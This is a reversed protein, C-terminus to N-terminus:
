GCGKRTRIGAGRSMSPRQGPFERRGKQGCSDRYLTAMRVRGLDLLAWSRRGGGDARGWRGGGLAQCVSPVMCMDQSPSPSGPLGLASSYSAGNGRHLLQWCRVPFGTDLASTQSPSGPQLRFLPLPQTVVIKTVLMHVTDNESLGEPEMGESRGEQESRGPVCSGPGLWAGEMQGQQAQLDCRKLIRDLTQPRLPVGAGGGGSGRDPRM